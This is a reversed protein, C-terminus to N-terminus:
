WLTAVPYQAIAADPTVVTLSGAIAQAVLLRDFPDRHLAPLETTRYFDDRALALRDLAWAGVQAEVWSRPPAPLELKQGSWKLCIEWVSVDSLVITAHADDLAARAKPGLRQPEATLWIFTCTDLLLKL